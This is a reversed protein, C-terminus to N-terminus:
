KNTYYPATIVDKILRNLFKRRIGIFRGVVFLTSDEELTVVAPFSGPMVVEGDWGIVGGLIDNWLLAM